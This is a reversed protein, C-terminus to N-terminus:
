STSVLRRAVNPVVSTLTAHTVSAEARPELCAASAQVELEGGYSAADGFRRTRRGVLCFLHKSYRKVMSM